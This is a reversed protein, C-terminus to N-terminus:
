LGRLPLLSLEKGVQGLGLATGAPCPLSPRLSPLSVQQSLPSSQCSGQAPRASPLRRPPGQGSSCLLLPCHRPTVCLLAPQIAFGMNWPVERAAPCPLDHDGRPRVLGQPFPQSPQEPTPAQAGQGEIGSSLSAKGEWGGTWVHRSSGGSCGGRYGPLGAWWPHPAARHQRGAGGLRVGWWWGTIRPKVLFCLRQPLFLGCSHFPFAPSM